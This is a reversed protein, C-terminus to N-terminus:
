YNVCPSVGSTCGTVYMEKGSITRGVVRNTPYWGANTGDSNGWPVLASTNNLAFYRTNTANTVAPLFWNNLLYDTDSVLGQSGAYLLGYHSADPNGLVQTWDLGTGPFLLNSFQNTSPNWAYGFTHQLVLISTGSAVVQDWPGRSFYTWTGVPSGNSATNPGNWYYLSGWADSVVILGNSTINLSTVPGNKPTGLNSWGQNLGQSVPYTYIGATTNIPLRAVVGGGAALQAGGGGIPTPSGLWQSGDYFYAQNNTATAVVGGSGGYAQVIPFSGTPSHWANPSNTNVYLKGWSEPIVCANDFASWYSGVTMGNQSESICCLDAVQLPGQGNITCNNVAASQWSTIAEVLEHAMTASPPGFASNVAVQVIDTTGNYAKPIYNNCGNSGCYSAHQSPTVVVYIIADAPGGSANTIPAPVWGHNIMYGIIATIDASTANDTTATSNPPHGTYIPAAPVVRPPSIQGGSGNLNGYQTVAAFWPSNVLSLTDGIFIPMTPTTTQNTWQEAPSDQWFILAVEPHQWMGALPGGSVVPANAPTCQVNPCLTSSTLAHADGAFVAIVSALFVAVLAHRSQPRM